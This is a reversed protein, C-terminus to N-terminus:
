DPQAPWQEQPAVFSGRAAVTVVYGEESLTELARRVVGVSIEHRTSLQTLSPLKARPELEGSQIQGRIIAALQQHLPTPDLQDVTTM